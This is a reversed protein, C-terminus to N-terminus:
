FEKFWSNEYTFYSIPKEKNMVEWEKLL